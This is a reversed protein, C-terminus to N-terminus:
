KHVKATCEKRVFPSDTRCVCPDTKRLFERIAIEERWSLIIDGKSHLELEHQVSFRLDSVNKHQGILDLRACLFAPYMKLAQEFETM